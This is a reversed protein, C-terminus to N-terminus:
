QCSECFLRKIQYNRKIQFDSNVWACWRVRDSELAKELVDVYVTPDATYSTYNMTQALVFLGNRNLKGEKFRPLLHDLTMEYMSWNNFFLALDVDDEPKLVSKKFHDAIHNFATSINVADNVQGYYQIFTLNLNLVLEQTEKPTSLLAMKKPHIVNSLREASVDWNNLLALGVLTYLHNLNFRARDDLKDAQNLCAHIFSTILYPDQFYNSSVVAAYNAIVTPQTEVFELVQPEFLLAPDYHSSRYMEFLAKNALRSNGTAVATRLNFEGLTGESEDENFEGLYNIVVTARRQALLLSDWPLSRDRHALFTKLSDHSIQTLDERHFYNLQFNMQDWNEEARISVNDASVDLARTVQDQIFAARANHLLANRAADGEVSSYCRIQISHIADGYTEITPLQIASTSSVQFDYHVIQSRVVGQKVLQVTPEDQILPEIPRLDYRKHPVWAPYVYKCVKGNKILLLSPSYPKGQLEAPIDAIKAIVRYDSEARNHALITPAFYPKLLIGDYLPSLDLQNPQGCLLQDRSVLDVAIGDNPGSLIHKFYSIDHFYLTVQNGEIRLDNGLNMIVNSYIDFDKGCDMTEGLGFANSSLQGPVQHGKTGFVHTAYVTRKVANAKFGLDGFVYEPETMNAYHGPSNLWSNFMETALAHLDKSKLPFNQPTSYLVNEGVTLLDTGKFAVVRDKPTAYKPQKETHTLLDRAAMYDSHFQAAKKLTDNFLLPQLGKSIRLSNIQEALDLRLIEADKDTLQSFAIRPLLCVLLFLLRLTM